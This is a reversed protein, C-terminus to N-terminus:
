DSKGGYPVWGVEEQESEHLEILSLHIVPFLVEIGAQAPAAHYYLTGKAAELCTPLSETHIELHVCPFM